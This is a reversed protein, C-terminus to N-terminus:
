NCPVTAASAAELISQRCAERQEASIGQATTAPAPAPPNLQCVKDETFEVSLASCDASETGCDMGDLRRATIALGPTSDEQVDFEQSWWWFKEGLALQRWSGSEPLATWLSAQGFWFV